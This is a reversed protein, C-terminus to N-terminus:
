SKVTDVVEMESRLAALWLRRAVIPTTSTKMKTIKARKAGQIAGWSGAWM